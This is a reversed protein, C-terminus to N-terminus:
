PNLWHNAGLFVKYGSKLNLHQTASHMAQNYLFLLSLQQEISHPWLSPYELLDQLTYLSSRKLM